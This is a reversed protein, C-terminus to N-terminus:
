NWEPQVRAHIGDRAPDSEGALSRRGGRELRRTDAPSLGGLGTGSRERHATGAAAARLSRRWRIYNRVVRHDPSPPWGADQQSMIYPIAGTHRDAKTSARVAFMGKAGCHGPMVPRNAMPADASVKSAEMKASWPRM